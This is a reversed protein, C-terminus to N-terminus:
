KKTSVSTQTAKRYVAESIVQPGTSSSPNTTKVMISTPGMLEVELKMIVTDGQKINWRPRRPDETNNTCSWPTGGDPPGILYCGKGVFAVARTQPEGVAPYTTTVYGNQNAIVQQGKPANGSVFKSKAVDLNWTGWFDQSPQQQGFCSGVLCAFLILLSKMQEKRRLIEIV